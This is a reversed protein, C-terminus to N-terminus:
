LSITITTNIERMVHWGPGQKSRQETLRLALLCSSESRCALRCHQIAVELLQQSTRFSRNAALLGELFDEFRPKSKSLHKWKHKRARRLNTRWISKNRGM